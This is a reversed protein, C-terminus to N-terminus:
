ALKLSLPIDLRRCCATPGWEGNSKTFPRAKFRAGRDTRDWNAWKDRDNGILSYVGGLVWGRERYLFLHSLHSLPVFGITAPNKTDWWKGRGV